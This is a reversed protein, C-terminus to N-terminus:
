ETSSVKKGLEAWDRDGALPPHYIRLRMYGVRGGVLGGVRVLLLFGSYCGLSPLPVQESGAIGM